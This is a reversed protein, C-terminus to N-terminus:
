SESIVSLVADICLPRLDSGGDVYRSARARIEGWASNNEDLRHNREAEEGENEIVGKRKLLMRPNSAYSM